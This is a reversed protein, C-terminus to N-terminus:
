RKPVFLTRDLPPAPEHSTVSLGAQEFTASEIGNEDAKNEERPPLPADHVEEFLSNSIPIANTETEPPPSQDSRPNSTPFDDHSAKASLNEFLEQSAENLSKAEPLTM